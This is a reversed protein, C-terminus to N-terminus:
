FAVNIGLNIVRQLPYGLGNGGMEVDWFDFSSIKFLNTGSVYMRCTQLMVKKAIHEPISYGIEVSKLRLFAGNQLFWTSRQRNNSIVYNSLRPWAAYPDQSAESWYDDAIFKTLGTELIKGDSTSQVFPSMANTNIWFSSRGSGQFFFSMDFDKYGASLGFGYNIEPTTPLGIPVMDIGNIVDDGNIDKYKIDGPGYEGFDQRPSNEVDANDIFLREAVYGWQQSIPMGIRSRWPTDTFDAEEYYKFESKAFTYNARGVIWADSGIIQNYDLSIDFGKGKAEGVNVQPTAWLGMSTAIDSRYQLINKRHEKFIDALIDIKGDFLGLEIGLNSKYAVEWGIESNAYNSITVGNRQRGNFDYGFQYGNGGGINVKSLYFFRDAGIEDNGVLGYTGRIKLKSIVNKLNGQWFAENSTVWGLGFSPFFGWRHGADFKESGNYGFNFESLYRTDYAYSFRGSLGLNRKELSEILDNANGTLANRATFVLMGSIGHKEFTRNYSMSAEAYFSSSVTKYGNTFDLFETGGDPNLQTLKSTDNIRDYTTAQYYFPNYSRSLDFAANRTTNGLVRGTLGEAWQSFDQKLELQALMLSRSEERYGKLMEAYPNMYQDSEFNGFLIHQAYQYTEDPEYFPPFRVPSVRLMKRYLESGGAIPGIYDDFTGHVRVIAETSNTLNININSRILYKKLNINSNFNNREDVDLIGNDQSFSGAIYYRAVKGGGSINLNMRQNIAIDKTLIDKWNTSPYVYKNTERITNDIKSNSYPVPALPNRTLAAENAMNMYTIPDAMEIEQTPSSFSNEFRFSVKARGEKGEKTTVLIVGNAGRAGYLATATADKLISFSQVDDPHMRSLDHTSVEVNDILILPDVKGTGFSTIGRIFFDANDQGPEGSTQYSIVGAMRGAFATTLNSSPVRLEDTKITEISSIVSEKKQKGFAVITVEELEDIKEEMEINITNQAGVDIVQSEKGVFSFVLRDSSQAEIKYTGDDDTIVGRSTGLITITVGPLPDGDTDTVKGAVENKRPQQLALVSNGEVSALRRELKNVPAEGIVIQRDNVIFINNTGAYLQDLIEHIDKDTVHISVRRNLDLHDEQYFFLFESQEEIAKMVEKVTANNIDLSLKTSQSYSNASFAM